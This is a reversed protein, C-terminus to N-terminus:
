EQVRVNLNYYQRVIGATLAILGVALLYILPYIFISLMSEYTAGPPLQTSFFVAIWVMVFTTICGIGLGVYLGNIFVKKGVGRQLNSPKQEAPNEVEAQPAPTFFLEVAPNPKNEVTEFPNGNGEEIWSEEATEDSSESTPRKGALREGETETKLM